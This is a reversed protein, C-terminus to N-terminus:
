LDAQDLMAQYRDRIPTLTNTVFSNWQATNLSRGYAANFSLRVQNSTIEGAVVWGHLRWILYGFRHAWRRRQASGAPAADMQERARQVRDWFGAAFQAETTHVLPLAM